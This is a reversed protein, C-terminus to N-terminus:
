NILVLLKERSDPLPEKAKGISGAAQQDKVAAMGGIGEM